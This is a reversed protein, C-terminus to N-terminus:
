LVKSGMKCFLSRMETQKETDVSLFILNRKTFFDLDCNKNHTKNSLIL